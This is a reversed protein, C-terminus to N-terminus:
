RTCAGGRRGIVDLQPDVEDAGDITLDIAPRAALPAVDLGLARAQQEVVASCPM